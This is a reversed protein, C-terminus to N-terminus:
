CALFTLALSRANAAVLSRDRSSHAIRFRVIHDATGAVPLRVASDPLVDIRGRPEVNASDAFAKWMPNGPETGFHSTRYLTGDPSIAFSLLFDQFFITCDSVIVFLAAPVDLNSVSEFWVPREVLMLSAAAVAVYAPWLRLYRSVYFRFVSLYEARTNLVLTILFGLVVYFAQM